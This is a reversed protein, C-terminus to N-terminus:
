KEKPTVNVNVTYNGIVWSESKSNVMISLRCTKTKEDIADNGDM